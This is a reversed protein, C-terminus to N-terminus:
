VRGAIWAVAALLLGPMALVGVMEVIRLVAIM